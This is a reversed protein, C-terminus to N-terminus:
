GDRHRRGQRGPQWHRLRHPRWYRLRHPRGANRDVSHQVPGDRDRLGIGAERRKKARVLM